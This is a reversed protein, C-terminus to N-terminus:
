EVVALLAECACQEDHSLEAFRSLRLAHDRRDSLFFKGVHDAGSARANALKHVVESFESVDRIVASDVNVLCKQIHHQMIAQRLLGCAPWNHDIM